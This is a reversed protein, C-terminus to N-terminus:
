EFSLGPLECGQGFPDVALSCMRKQERDLIDSVCCLPTLERTTTYRGALSVVESSRISPQPYGFSPRTTLLGCVGAGRNEQRAFVRM